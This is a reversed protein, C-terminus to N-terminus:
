RQKVTEDITVKFFSTSTPWWRENEFFDLLQSWDKARFDCKVERNYPYDYAVTYRCGHSRLYSPSDDVIIDGKLLSKNNCFIMKRIDFFPLYQRVWEIKEPICNKSTPWPATVIYVDHKDCIYKMTERALPQIPMDLWFGDASFIADTWEDIKKKSFHPFMNQLVNYTKCDEPKFNVDWGYIVKLYKVVSYIFDTLTNDQDIFITM